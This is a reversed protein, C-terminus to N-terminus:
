HGDSYCSLQVGQTIMTFQVYLSEWLIYLIYREVILSFSGVLILCIQERGLWAVFLYIFVEPTLM